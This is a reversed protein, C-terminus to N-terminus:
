VHFESLAWRFYKKIDTLNKKSRKWKEKINKEAKRKGNSLLTFTGHFAFSFKKIIGMPPNLPAGPVHVGTQTWNENMKMCNEAFIQGFLLNADRGQPEIGGEGTQSIRSEGIIGKKDFTLWSKIKAHLLTSLVPFYQAFLAGFLFVNNTTQGQCQPRLIWIKNYSFSIRAWAIRLEFNVAELSLCICVSIIVFYKPAEFGPILRTGQIRMQFNRKRDKMSRYHGATTIQWQMSLVTHREQLTCVRVARIWRGCTTCWRSVLIQNSFCCCCSLKYDIGLALLYFPKQSFLSM